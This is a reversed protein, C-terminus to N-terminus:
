VRRAIFVFCPGTNGQHQNVPMETDPDSPVLPTWIPGPMVAKMRVRHQALTERLTQEFGAIGHSAHPAPRAPHSSAAAAEGDQASAGLHDIAAAAVQRGFGPDGLDGAIASAKVGFVRIRRVADCVGGHEYRYALVVDGGNNALCLAVARALPSDAGTVIAVTGALGENPRRGSSIRVDTLRASRLLETLMPNENANAPLPL